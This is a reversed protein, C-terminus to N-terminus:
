TLLPVVKEHTLPIPSASLRDECFVERLTTEIEGELGRYHEQLMRNVRVKCPMELFAKFCAASSFISSRDIEQPRLFHIVSVREDAGGEGALYGDAIRPDNALNYRPGIDVAEVGAGLIALTLAIQAGFFIEGFEATVAEMKSGILGTVQRFSVPDGVVFGYNFYPPCTLGRLEEPLITAGSYPFAYPNPHGGGIALVRQWFEDNESLDIVPPRHAICGGLGPSERFRAVLDDLVGLVCIDADCFVVLDADDTLTSFRHYGAGYLSSAGLRHRHWTIPLEESWGLYSEFNDLVEDSRDAYVVHIEFDCGPGVKERISCALAIIQGLFGRTALIPIHFSIKPRM